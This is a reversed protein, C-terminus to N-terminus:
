MSTSAAGETVVVSSEPFEIMVEVLFHVSIGQILVLGITDEVESPNLKFVAEGFDTSDVCGVEIVGIRTAARPPMMKRSSM